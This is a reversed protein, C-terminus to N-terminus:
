MSKQAGHPHPYCAVQFVLRLVEKEFRFRRPRNGRLDCARASRIATTSPCRGLWPALLVLQLGSPFCIARVAPQSTRAHLECRASAPLWLLQHIDSALRLCVLPQMRGRRGERWGEHLPSLVCSCTTYRQYICSLNINM